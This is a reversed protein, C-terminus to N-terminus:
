CDNNFIREFEDRFNSDNELLDAWHEPNPKDGIYESKSCSKMRQNITEDFKQFTDKVEATIKEINTVRQVTSRSIVTGRQTLVHYYILRGTRHSVGLWRGPEFPSLGTNDKFWVQEYFRFYLYESIDAIEGTIQAIPIFGETSGAPSHTLSMTESLWRIGYDWLERPVQRRIM